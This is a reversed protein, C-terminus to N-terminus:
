SERTRNEQTTEGAHQRGLSLESGITIAGAILAAM